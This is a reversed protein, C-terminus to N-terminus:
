ETKEVNGTMSYGHILGDYTFENPHVGKELMQDYYEIAEEMKGVKSLGIILSNYCYLDPVEAVMQELLGGATESEGIQCLGNIIISYTYVNPSIGDKRMENLLWFAEEKNHQRLHGEILHNFTITDAIHGIKVMEKLVETARGLYGRILYDYTIKNPQVGAASMDKIIKFAEDSNGERM